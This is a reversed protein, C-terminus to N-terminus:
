PHKAKHLTAARQLQASHGNPILLSVSSVPSPGQSCGVLFIGDTFDQFKVLIELTQSLPEDRDEM